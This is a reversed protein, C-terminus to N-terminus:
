DNRQAVATKVTGYSTKIAEFVRNRFSQDLDAEVDELLQNADVVGTRENYLRNLRIEKQAELLLADIAENTVMHDEKLQQIQKAVAQIKEEEFTLPEIVEKVPSLAEKKLADQLDERKGAILAENKSIIEPLPSAKVPAKITQKTKLSVINEVEKEDITEIAVTHNESSMEVMPTDAIKPTEDKTIERGFFQTIILLVGVISAAVGMWLVPRRTQKGEQDDLRESLKGWANESPKIARKELKNKITEEFKVPEM